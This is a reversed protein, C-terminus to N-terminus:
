GRLVLSRPSDTSAHPAGHRPRPDLLVQSAGRLRRVLRKRSAIGYSDPLRSLPGLPRRTRPMSFADVRSGQMARGLPRRCSTPSSNANSFHPTLVETRRRTVLHFSVEIKFGNWATLLDRKKEEEELLDVVGNVISATDDLNNDLVNWVTSILDRASSENARYGRM